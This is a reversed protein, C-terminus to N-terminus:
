DGRVLPGAHPNGIFPPLSKYRPDSRPELLGRDSQMPTGCTENAHHARQLPPVVLKNRDKRYKICGCEHLTNRNGRDPRREECQQERDRGARGIHAEDVVHGIAGVITAGALGVTHRFLRRPLHREQQARRKANSDAEANEPAVIKDQHDDVQAGPGCQVSEIGHRGKPQLVAADKANDGVRAAGM